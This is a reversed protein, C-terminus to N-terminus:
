LTNRRTFRRSEPRDPLDPSIDGLEVDSSPLGDAAHLEDREGRAFLRLNAVCGQDYPSFELWEATPEAGCLPPAPPASSKVRRMWHVQERTTLNFLALYTHVAALPSLMLLLLLLMPLGGLALRARAISAAVDPNTSTASAAVMWSSLPAPPELCYMTLAWLLVAAEGSLLMGLFYPHNSAGVPGGVWPCDHDFCRIAGQSLKSYAARPPLVLESRECFGSPALSGIPMKEYGAWYRRAHEPDAGAVFGPDTWVVRKWMMWYLGLSVLTACAPLLAPGAAYPLLAV